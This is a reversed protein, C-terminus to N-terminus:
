RGDEFPYITYYKYKAKRKDYKALVCQQEDRDRLFKYIESENNSVAGFEYDQHNHDGFYAVYFENVNKIDDNKLKFIKNAWLEHNIDGSKDLKFSDLAPAYISKSKGKGWSYGKLSIQKDMIDDEKLLPKYKKM